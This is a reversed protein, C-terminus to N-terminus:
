FGGRDTMPLKKFGAVANINGKYDDPPIITFNVISEEIETADQDNNMQKIDVEFKNIVLDQNYLHSIIPNNPSYLGTTKTHYHDLSDKFPIPINALIQKAFGGQTHTSKNKYNQLPIGRLFISYSRSRWGRSLEAYTTQAQPISTNPCLFEIPDTRVIKSAKYDDAINFMEAMEETASLFYKTFLSVPRLSYNTAGITGKPLGRYSCTIFSFYAKNSWLMPTLGQQSSMKNNMKEATAGTSYNLSNIDDCHFMRRPLFNNKNNSSYSDYIVNQPQEKISVGFDVNKLNVIRYYTREDNTAFLGHEPNQYTQLGLHIGKGCGYDLLTTSQTTQIM